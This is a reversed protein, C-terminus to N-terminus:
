ARASTWWRAKKASASGERLAVSVDKVGSDRLNLAHARGQSGYGLVAIRAGRRAFELAVARGIGQAAGFILATKNDFPSM